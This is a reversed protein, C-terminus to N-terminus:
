RVLYLLPFLFIWVLDVFHWYLGMIEVPAHKQPTYRGRRTEILLFTFLGVGVLMHVAHVGTMFFYFVWFLQFQRLLKTESIQSGIAARHLNASIEADPHFVGYCPMVGEHYEHTYEAAKILLFAIGLILTAALLRGLLRNQGLKVARVGLAVTLSSTLLVATNWAGSSVGLFRFNDVILSANHWAPFYLHRYVTYGCIMGGFFLVETALFTWMGLTGAETQQELDDFQEAVLESM